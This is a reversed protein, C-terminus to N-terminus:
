GMIARDELRATMWDMVALFNAGQDASVATLCFYPQRELAHARVIPVASIANLREALERRAHVTAFASTRMLQDFIVAATGDTWVRMVAIPNEAVDLEAVAAGITPSDTYLVRSARENMWDIIAKATETV